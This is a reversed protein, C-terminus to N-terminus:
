ANLTDGHYDGNYLLRSARAAEKLTATDRISLQFRRSGLMLPFWTHIEEHGFDPDTDKSCFVQIDVTAEPATHYLKTDLREILPYQGDVDDWRSPVLVLFITILEVNPPFGWNDLFSIFALLESYVVMFTTYRVNLLRHLGYIPSNSQPKVWHLDELTQAVQDFLWPILTIADWIIKGIELKRLRSLKLPCGPKMLYGLINAGDGYFALSELFTPQLNKQSSEFPVQLFPM